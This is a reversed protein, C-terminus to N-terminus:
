AHSESERFIDLVRRTLTISKISRLHVAVHNLRARCLLGPMQDHTYM